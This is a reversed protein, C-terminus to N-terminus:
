SWAVDPNQGMTSDLTFDLNRRSSCRYPFLFIPREPPISNCYTWSSITSLYLVRAWHPTRCWPLYTQQFRCTFGFHKLYMYYQLWIDFKPSIWSRWDLYQTNCRHNFYLYFIRLSFVLILVFLRLCFVHTPNKNGTPHTLTFSEQLYWFM